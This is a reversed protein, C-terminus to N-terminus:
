AYLWCLLISKNKIFFAAPVGNGFKEPWRLGSKAMLEEKTSASWEKCEKRLINIAEYNLDLNFNEAGIDLYSFFESLNNIYVHDYKHNHIVELLHKFCDRSSNFLVHGIGSFITLGSLSWGEKLLFSINSNSKRNKTRTDKNNKNHKSEQM